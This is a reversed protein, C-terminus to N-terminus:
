PFMRGGIEETGGTEGTVGIVGITGTDRGKARARARDAETDPAMGKPRDM